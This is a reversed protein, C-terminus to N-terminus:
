PKLNWDHNGNGEMFSFLDNVKKFYETIDFYVPVDEFSGEETQLELKLMDCVSGNNGSVISQNKVLAKGKFLYDIFGFEDAVWNVCFGRDNATGDGSSKIINAIALYRFCLPDLFKSSNKLHLALSICEYLTSLSVPQSSLEKMKLKLAKKYKGKKVLESYQLKDSASGMPQYKETYVFGYYLILIDEYSLTTDAKEFRVMLKNYDASHEKVFLEISEYDVGVKEVVHAETSQYDIAVKEQDGCAFAVVKSVLFVLLIIVKKM